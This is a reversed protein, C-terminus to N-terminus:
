LSADLRYIGCGKVINKGVHTSVGWLLWPLLPLWNAAQYHARGVLGGIVQQRGLRSSYGKVDWWNTQQDLLQVADASPYLDRRLVLPEDGLTPRGGGYQTCLDLVRVVVQKFFPFFAPSKLTHDGQTLRLPTLFEVSLKGNHARLTAAFDSSAALVQEHTVPLTATRVSREGPGLMTLREGSLPNVAEIQEVTFKGRAGAGGESQERKGVGFEGMGGTALVVYPFLGLMDGYLAVGFAFTEGPAFHHQATLPPEIAYARRLDGGAEDDGEWSLLRCIPCMAQHLPDRGVVAGDKGGDPCFTSRLVSVLAGRLASGKFDDFHIPTIARVTFRIHHATLPIQLRSLADVAFTTSPPSETSM